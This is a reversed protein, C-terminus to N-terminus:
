FIDVIKNIAEQFHEPESNLFHTGQMVGNHWIRFMVEFIILTIDVRGFTPESIIYFNVTHKRMTNKNTLVLKGSFGDLDKITFYFVDTEIKSAILYDLFIKANINKANM